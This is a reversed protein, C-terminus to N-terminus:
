RDRGSRGVIICRAGEMKMRREATRSSGDRSLCGGRDSYLMSTRWIATENKKMTRKVSTTLLATFYHRKM